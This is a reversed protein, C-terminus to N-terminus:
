AAVGMDISYITNLKNVLTPNQIMHLWNLSKTSPPINSTLVEQDLLTGSANYINVEVNSTSVYKIETRFSLFGSPAAVLSLEKKDIPNTGDGHWVNFNADTSNFGCVIGGDAQAIPAEANPFAAATTVYGSYHRMDGSTRAPLVTKALYWPLFAGRTFGAFASVSRIIALGANLVSATGTGFGHSSGSADLGNPVFSAGLGVVDRMLGEGEVKLSNSLYRGTKGNIAKAIVPDSGNYAHSASHASPAYTAPENTVKSWDVDNIKADTIANNQVMATTLWTNEDKYAIQSNLNAKNLLDTGVVLYTDAGFSKILLSRNAAEAETNISVYNVGNPRLIRVKNAGGFYIPNEIKLLKGLDEGSLLRNVTDLDDGGFRVGTGPDSINIIKLLSM